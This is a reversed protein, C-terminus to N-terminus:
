NAPFTAYAKRRTWTQMNFLYSHLEHLLVAREVKRDDHWLALRGGILVLFRKTSYVRLVQKRSFGNTACLALPMRLLKGPFLVPHHFVVREKPTGTAGTFNNTLQPAGAAADEM